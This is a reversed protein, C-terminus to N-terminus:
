NMLVDFADVGLGCSASFRGAIEVAQRASAGMAMAGIALEAGSGWAMFPEEECPQMVPQKEYTGVIGGPKVIVMRSWNEGEQFKPWTEPKAGDKYWQLLLLGQDNGGCWAVVEGTNIKVIKTLREAIDGRTGQKDAALTKRDWAIVSM